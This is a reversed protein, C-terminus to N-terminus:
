NCSFLLFSSIKFGDFSPINKGEKGRLIIQTGDESIDGATIFAPFSSDFSRSSIDFEQGESPKPANTRMMLEPIKGERTLDVEFGMIMNDGYGTRVLTPQLSELVELPPM